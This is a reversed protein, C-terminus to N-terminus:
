RYCAEVGRGLTILLDHVELTQGSLPPCARRILSLPLTIVPTTLARYVLGCGTLPAGTHAPLVGVRGSARVDAELSTQYRCVSFRQGSLGHRALAAVLSRSTYGDADLLLLTHGRLHRWTIPSGSRALEHDVPLMARLPLECFATPVLDAGGHDPIPALLLDCAGTRLRRLGNAQEVEDLEIPIRRGVCMLSAMANAVLDVASPVAGIRVSGAADVTGHRNRLREISADVDDAAALVSRALSLFRAGRASLKRGSPGRQLLQIGLQGELTRLATALTSEHAGLRRAAENVSGAEAVACLVRLQSLKFRFRLREDGDRRADEDRDAAVAEVWPEPLTM